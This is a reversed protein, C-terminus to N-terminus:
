CMSRVLLLELLSKSTALLSFPICTVPRGVCPLSVRLYVCMFGFLREVNMCRSCLLLAVGMVDGQSVPRRAFAWEPLHGSGVGVSLIELSFRLGVVQM